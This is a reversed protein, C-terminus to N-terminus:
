VSRNASSRWNHTTGFWLTVRVIGEKLKDAWGFKNCWKVNVRRFLKIADRERVSGPLAAIVEVRYERRARRKSVLNYLYPKLEAELDWDPPLILILDIDSPEDICGMVFSGDLIV